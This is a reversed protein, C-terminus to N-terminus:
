LKSLYQAASDLIEEIELAIAFDDFALKDPRQRFTELLGAGLYTLYTSSYENTGQDAESLKGTKRGGCVSQDESRPGVGVLQLNLEKFITLSEAAVKNDCSTIRCHKKRRFVEFVSGFVIYHRTKHPAADRNP